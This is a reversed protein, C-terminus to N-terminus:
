SSWVWGMATDSVAKYLRDVAEESHHKRYTEIDTRVDDENIEILDNLGPARGRKRGGGIM